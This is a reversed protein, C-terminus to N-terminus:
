LGVDVLKIEEAMTDDMVHTYLDMTIKFSSHGLYKQLTKPKMGSEIARTAFTDRFAHISFHEFPKGTEAEIKRIVANICPSTNSPRIFGNKKTVFVREGNSKERQKQLIDIVNDNVFLKRKSTSTKPTSIENGIATRSVGKNIQITKKKFDIDSWNLAAAEGIRCGTTLLFQYLEYYWSDKAYEMFLSTEAKTLARHNTEASTPEIRKLPKVGDCPNDYRLKDIIASKIIQSLLGVTENVGATTLKKALARQLALVDRREIEDIPMSGLHPKIRKWRTDNCYRTSEKVTGMRSADWEAFYQSLTPVNEARVEPHKKELALKECAAITKGYVSYRKGDITFRYEYSGNDRLKFGRPLKKGSM